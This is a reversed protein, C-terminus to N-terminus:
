KITVIELVPDFFFFFPLSLSKSLKANGQASLWGSLVVWVVVRPFGNRAAQDMACCCRGFSGWQYRSTIRHMYSKAIFTNIDEVSSHPSVRSLSLPGWPVVVIPFACTGWWIKHLWQIKNLHINHEEEAVINLLSHKLLFLTIKCTNKLSTLLWFCKIAWYLHSKCGEIGM